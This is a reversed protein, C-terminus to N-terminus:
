RFPISPVGGRVAKLSCFFFKRYRWFAECFFMKCPLIDKVTNKVLSFGIGLVLYCVTNKREKKKLNGNRMKEKVRTPLSRAKMMM